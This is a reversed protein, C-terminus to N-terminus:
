EGPVVVIQYLNHISKLQFEQSVQHLKTLDHTNKFKQNDIQYLEILEDHYFIM